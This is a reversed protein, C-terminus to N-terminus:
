RAIGADPAHADEEKPVDKRIGWYRWFGKSRDLAIGWYRWYDKSRDFADSSGYVEITGDNKIRVKACQTEQKVKEVIEKREAKTM